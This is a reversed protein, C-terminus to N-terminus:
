DEEADFAFFTRAAVIPVTAGGGDRQRLRLVEGAWRGDVAPVTFPGGVQLVEAHALALAKLDALVVRASTDRGRQCRRALAHLSITALSKTECTLVDPGARLTIAVVMAALEVGDDQWRALHLSAASARLEVLRLSRRSAEIVLDLRGQEPMLERWQRVAGSLMEPRPVPHRARRALLPEMIQAIAPAVQQDAAALTSRFARAKGRFEAPLASAIRGGANV